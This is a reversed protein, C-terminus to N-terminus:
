VCSFLLRPANKARMSLALRQGGRGKVEDDLSKICGGDYRARRNGTLVSYPRM